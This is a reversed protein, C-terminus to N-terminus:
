LVCIFDFLDDKLDIFEIIIEILHRACLLYLYQCVYMVRLGYNENQMSVLFSYTPDM